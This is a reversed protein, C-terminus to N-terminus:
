VADRPYRGQLRESHNLRARLDASESELAAIRQRTETLSSQLGSLEALTIRGVPPETDCDLSHHSAWPM